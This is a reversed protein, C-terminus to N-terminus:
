FERATVFSELPPRSQTGEVAPAALGEGVVVGNGQKMDEEKKDVGEGLPEKEAGVVGVVGRASELTMTSASREAGGGVGPGLDGRLKFPYAVVGNHPRGGDKPLFTNTGEVREGRPLAQALAKEQEVSGDGVVSTTTTTTTGSPRSSMAPRVRARSGVSSSRGKEDGAPGKTGAEVTVSDHKSGWGSWMALGWSKKKGKGEGAALNLLGGDQDKKGKKVARRGALATPPPVEETGDASVFTEYGALIEDARRLQVKRKASSFKKDWVSKRKMWKRVPGPKIAGISSRPITCGPLESPAALPFITGHRTIRQRIMSDKFPPLPSTASVTGLPVESQPPSPDQTSSNNTTALSSDATSTLSADAAVASDSLSRGKRAPKISGQLTEAESDTDSSIVSVADTDNENPVSPTRASNTYCWNGFQAVARYMHKAPRTFSLTHPVHCLDEWVQLQVKTPPYKNQIKRDPDHIDLLAEPAPYAAPNAAKHALYVQEDCLLEGGGTQILLPPLGGLSSQMVPSVLPHTLLQNTAYMQIQDLIEVRKGDIELSLNPAVGASAAQPSSTDKSKPDTSVARSTGETGPVTVTPNGIPEVHLGTVAETEKHTASGKRVKGSKQFTGARLEKLENANPPPWALSPRHHFGMAPIYDLTGEGSVSPFSHTLDVWPSLLIAGAPLAIGQDRLTVLLSITMGGGASDGALIIESADHDELLFLYAALADQLGCPFPFQPALRYRPALMRAKLKRAHRQMQYRHEDVSGFYYAGGHIYLIIRSPPANNMRRENYQARMEIWEAKLPSHEPRWQWWKSGGVAEVGTPGLQANLLSAAHTLHAELISVEETRVWRPCPVWQATFAQVEDVTHNSAYELFQRVLHLGEDYSIHATPKGRLPKRKIYHSIATEIVSPTVAAGVTLTNLVM